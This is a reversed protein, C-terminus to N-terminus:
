CGMRKWVRNFKLLCASVIWSWSSISQFLHTMEVDFCTTGAMMGNLAARIQLLNEKSSTGTNVIFGAAGIEKDQLVLKWGSSLTHFLSVKAKFEEVIRASNAVLLEFHKANEDISM